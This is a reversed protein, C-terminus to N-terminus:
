KQKEAKNWKILLNMVATMNENIEIADDESLTEEYYPQWVKKTYDIFNEKDINM